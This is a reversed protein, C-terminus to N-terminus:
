IVEKLNRGNYIALLRPLLRSAMRSSYYAAESSTARKVRGTPTLHFPQLAGCRFM